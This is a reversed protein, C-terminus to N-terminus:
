PTYEHNDWATKISSNQLLETKLLQIAPIEMAPEHWDAIMALYVDTITLTEGMLFPGKLASALIAFDADMAKAGAAKVAAIAAPATGATFRHPYYFRLAAPYTSASLFALWQLATARDATGYDPLLNAQKHREDLALLIAMSEIITQGEPTILVPIKGAPNIARFAESRQEAKTPVDVLVYDAGTLRLAAEAVMSGSGARWYLHYSAM